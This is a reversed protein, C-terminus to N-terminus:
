EDAAEAEGASERDLRWPGRRWELAFRGTRPVHLALLEEAFDEAPEDAGPMGGRSALVRPMGTEPALTHWGDAELRRQLQALAQAAQVDGIDAAAASVVLRTTSRGPEWRSGVGDPSPGLLDRWLDEAERQLEAEHTERPAHLPPLSPEEDDSEPPLLVIDIDPHRRRVVGFFTDSAVVGAGSAPPGDPEM